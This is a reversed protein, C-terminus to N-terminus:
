EKVGTRERREQRNGEDRRRMWARVFTLGRRLRGSQAKVQYGNGEGEKERLCDKCGTGLVGRCVGTRTSSKVESLQELQGGASARRARRAWCCDGPPASIM